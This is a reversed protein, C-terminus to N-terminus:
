ASYVPPGCSAESLYAANYGSFGRNRQDEGEYSGIFTNLSVLVLGEGAGLVGNGVILLWLNPVASCLAM